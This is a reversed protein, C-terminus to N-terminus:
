GIDIMKGSAFHGHLHWKVIVLKADGVRFAYVRTDSSHGNHEAYPIVTMQNKLEGSTVNVFPAVRMVESYIDEWDPEVQTPVCPCWTNAFNLLSM